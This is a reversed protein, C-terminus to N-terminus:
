VNGGKQKNIFIAKIVLYNINIIVWQNQYHVTNVILQLTPDSQLSVHGSGDPPIPSSPPLQDCCAERKDQFVPM